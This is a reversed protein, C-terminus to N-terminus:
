KRSRNRRRDLIYDVLAYPALGAVVSLFWVVIALPQPLPHTLSGGALRVQAMAILTWVLWIPVILIRMPRALTQAIGSEDARDIMPVLFFLSLSLVGIFLFLHRRLVQRM